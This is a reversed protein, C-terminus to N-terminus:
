FARRLYQLYFFRIRMLCNEENFRSPGRERLLASLNFNEVRAGHLNILMRSGSELVAGRIERFEECEEIYNARNGSSCEKGGECCRPFDSM